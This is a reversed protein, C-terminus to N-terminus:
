IFHCHVGNLLLCSDSVITIEGQNDVLTDNLELIKISFTEMKASIYVLVM